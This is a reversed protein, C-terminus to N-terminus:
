IGLYEELSINQKYIEEAIEVGVYRFHWSEYMYGTIKEKGEPYRMIFGFRHANAAVWKGADTEGFERRHLINNM